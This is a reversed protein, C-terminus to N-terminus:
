TFNLFLIFNLFFFFFLLFFFFLGYGPPAELHATLPESLPHHFSASFSLESNAQAVPPGGVKCGSGPAGRQPRAM